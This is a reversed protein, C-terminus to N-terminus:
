IIVSGNCYILVDDATILGSRISAITPRICHICYLVSRALLKTTKHAHLLLVM